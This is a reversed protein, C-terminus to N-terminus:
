TKRIRSGIDSGNISEGVLASSSTISSDIVHMTGMTGDGALANSLGGGRGARNSNVSVNRLTVTSGANHLGGGDGDNLAAGGTLLTLDRLTLTAGNLVEIVRDQDKANLITEEANLGIIELDNTVDLDGTLTADEPTPDVADFYAALVSNADLNLTYTARGM